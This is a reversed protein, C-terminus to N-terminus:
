TVTENAPAPDPVKRGLATLGAHAGAVLQEIAAEHDGADVRGDSLRGIREPNVLTYYLAGLLFHCRWVIDGRDAGPLCDAIADLFARTTDDFSEAIIARVEPDGEASLMARLRTFGAGGAAEGSCTFAPVLYARLVATLRDGPEGIRRAERLLDLRRDNIPRTGRLYIARLLGLKDGYHYTVSGVNVGAERAIERLAVPAFGREAFLREAAEIVASGADRADTKPM